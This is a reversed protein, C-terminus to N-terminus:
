SRRCTLITPILYDTFSPNMIRGDRQIIEEMLALGLGQAIGGEIQGTVSLPQARGVDQVTSLKLLGCSDWSSILTSLRGIVLLRLRRTAIAKAM